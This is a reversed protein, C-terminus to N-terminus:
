WLSGSHNHAYQEKDQVCPPVAVSSLKVHHYSDLSYYLSVPALYLFLTAFVLKNLGKLAKFWQTTKEGPQCRPNNMNLCKRTQKM